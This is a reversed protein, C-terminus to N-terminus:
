GSIDIGGDKLLVNKRVSFGWKIAGMSECRLEAVWRLEEM